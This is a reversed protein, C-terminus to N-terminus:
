KAEEERLRLEEQDKLLQAEIEKLRQDELDKAQQTIKEQLDVERKYEEEKTM